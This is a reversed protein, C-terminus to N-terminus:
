DDILLHSMNRQIMKQIFTNNFNNLKWTETKYVDWIKYYKIKQYYEDLLKSFEDKGELTDNAAGLDRCTKWLLETNEKELFKKLEEEM